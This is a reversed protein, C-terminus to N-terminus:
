RRKKNEVGSENETPVDNAERSHKLQGTSIVRGDDDIYGGGIFQELEPYERLNHRADVFIHRRPRRSIQVCSNGNLEDFIRNAKFCAKWGAVCPYEIGIENGDSSRICVRIALRSGPDEPTADKAWVYRHREGFNALEAKIWFGGDPQLNTM